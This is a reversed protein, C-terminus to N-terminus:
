FKVAIGGVFRRRLENDRAAVSIPTGRSIEMNLQVAWAAALDMLINLDQSVMVRLQDFEVPAQRVGQLGVPQLGQELHHLAIFVGTATSRFQTDLSTVVYRVRNEYPQHDPATFIGGGGAAVSSKLTTVVKPTIRHSFAFQLEPLRDGPVLYLSELRDFFDDSFYLRLTEGVTRDLASLSVKEEESSSKRSLSFRYCSEIAQDCLDSEEYLTPLFDAPFATPADTYLRRSLSAEAQWKSGLQLVLGGQPTLAVSGDALTSYLGYELLVAPQLRVGGRSFLDLSSQVPADEPRGSASLAFQRERYRIGTQLTAGPGLATTFAGEVRWTRSTEPISVPDIWGQRHYNNETTYQAAFDSRSNEGLGQSWSVQYHAFDVPSEASESRPVLRNNLSTVRIRSSPGPDVELSVASTQSVGAGAGVRLTDSNFQSFRGRLGVQVQGLRGEIGLRGGSVQGDGLADVREVGTIAQMETHFNALNLGVPSPPPTFTALQLESSEIQRLVDAPVRSRVSWFDDQAATGAAAGIVRETLQLELFQYAQATTRTLLIVVPVFGPKHAIIKYLGAPLDQFLFNGQPDTVAKKLSLDAIQYAYVGVAALPTSEGVVRGAVGSHPTEGRAAGGGLLAFVVIWPVSKRLTQM